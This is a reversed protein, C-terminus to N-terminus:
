TCDNLGETELNEVIFLGNKYQPIWCCWEWLREILTGFCIEDQTSRGERGDNDCTNIETSPSKVVVSSDPIVM